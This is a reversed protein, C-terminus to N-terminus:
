NATTIRWSTGDSQLTAWKGATAALIATGAAGGALPVVNSSASTVSGAFETKIVLQRNVYASASPLTYVSAATTQVITTDQEAVTYTAGTNVTLNKVSEGFNLFAGVDKNTRVGGSIGYIDVNRLNLVSTNLAQVGASTTATVFGGSAYVRTGSGQVDIGVAAGNVFCGHVQHTGGALFLFASSAINRTQLGFACVNAGDDVRLGYDAGDIVGGIINVGIVNGSGIRRVWVAGGSGYGSGTNAYLNAGIITTDYLNGTSALTAVAIGGTSPADWNYSTIGAITNGRRDTSLSVTVAAPSACNYATCGSIVSFDSDEIVFGTDYCNAAICGSIVNQQGSTYIGDSTKAATGGSLARCGNVRVRTGQGIAICVASIGGFGLTNRSTVNDLTCDTCSALYPGHYRVTQTHDAARAAQNMDFELDRIVVGTRGTATIIFEYESTTASKIKGRGHLTVNDVGVTLTSSVRYTGAPFHLAEYPSLATLAAQIASTVDLTETNALVDARQASTLFDFVSVARSNVEHQTTAVAGTLVSKVALLADNKTVDLANALDALAAVVAASAAASLARNETDSENIAAQVDTAAITGTPAFAVASAATASGLTFLMWKGAALDTAFTGATHPVACIYTNGSQSALDKLAYVTATLWSGRPTAGYAVLLALVDSALTHLKVRGDRIEGDDRQNLSLNALVGSLTTAVAAFEADLAATRVTSRGGVNAVEDDSFDTAPAYAAPQSM